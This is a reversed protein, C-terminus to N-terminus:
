EGDYADQSRQKHQRPVGHYRFGVAASGRRVVARVDVIDRVVHRCLIAPVVLASPLACVQALGPPAVVGSVPVGSVPVGSVVVGPM